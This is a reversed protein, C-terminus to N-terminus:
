PVPDQLSVNEFAVISEFVFFLGKSGNDPNESIAPTIKFSRSRSCKKRHDSLNSSTTAARALDDKKSWLIPV